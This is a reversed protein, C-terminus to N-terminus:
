RSRRPWPRRRQQAARQVARQTAPTPGAIVAPWDIRDNALLAQHGGRFGFLRKNRVLWVVLAVNVVFAAVRLVTVRKLLEEIELPLFGATALVTLYEAWRKELWLGIAELSEILAYLTATVLLLKLTDAKLSLIHELQRSIFSRGAEQGTEHLVPDLARNIKDAWNQLPGINTELAALILAIFTFLVAHLGKNLSILKMLIAEHLPKDRRPKPLEALPPMTASTVESGVPQTHEVWTDCRLCRALRRGDGLVAGLAADADSLLEVYMAPAVHGRMSCIWTEPHWHKPWLRM